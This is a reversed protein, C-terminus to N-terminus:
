DVVFRAQAGDASRVVYVGPSWDSVMWHMTVDPLAWWEARRRGTADFVQLSQSQAGSMLMQLSGNAMSVQLATSPTAEQIGAVPESFAVVFLHSQTSIAINGSEFYPYVNWAGGSTGVQNSFPNTDFFAVQEFELAAPNIIDLVQLGAYYNAEYVLGQHTYLNHDTVSLEGEYFGLLQPNDLDQVDIVWTRTQEAFGASEDLEDNLLVFRQDETLWGQHTYVWNEESIQAVTQCDTKDEVNVIFFGAFGSFAFAIEQGVHDLDPGNYVVVQADHIYAEEWSGALSPNTPNSVDVIHMGGNFTSTGIGYVFETEPNAAINHASGFGTYWSTLPINSMPETNLVQELDIVQIGHEGAESVIYAMDGVVKIDRWLSPVSATPVNGVMVPNAPDTIEVISTGDSRGFLVFERGDRSWGWCDNGNGPAVGGLEEFSRVSMLDLGECPYQGAMGGECPIQATGILVQLGIVAACVWRLALRFEGTQLASSSNPFHSSNM